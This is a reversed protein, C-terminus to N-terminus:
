IVIQTRLFNSPFRAIDYSSVLLEQMRVRQIMKQILRKHGSIMRRRWKM